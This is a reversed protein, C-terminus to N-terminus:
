SGHLGEGQEGAGREGHGADEGAVAVDHTPPADCQQQVRHPRTEDPMSQRRGGGVWLYDAWEGVM